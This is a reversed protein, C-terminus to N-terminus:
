SHIAVFIHFNLINLVRFLLERGSIFMVGGFWLVLARM